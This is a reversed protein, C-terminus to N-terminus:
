ITWESFRFFEWWQDFRQFSFDVSGDEMLRQLGVPRANTMTEIVYIREGAILLRGEADLEALGTAPVGALERFQGAVLIGGDALLRQSEVFGDGMVEGADGFDFDLYGDPGLKGVMARPEDTQAYIDGGGVLV